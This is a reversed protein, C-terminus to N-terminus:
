VIQNEKRRRCMELVGSYFKLLYLYLLFITLYSENQNSGDRLKKNNKKNKKQSPCIYWVPTVFSFFFSTFFFNLYM